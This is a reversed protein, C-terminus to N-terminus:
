VFIARDTQPKSPSPHCWDFIPQSLNRRKERVSIVQSAAFFGLVPVDIPTGNSVLSYTQLRSIEWILIRCGLNLTM